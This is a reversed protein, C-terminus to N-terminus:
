SPFATWVLDAVFWFVPGIAFTTVAGARTLGTGFVPQKLWASNRSPLVTPTAAAAAPRRGRRPLRDVTKVKAARVVRKTTRDIIVDAVRGAAWNAAYMAINVAFENNTSKSAM